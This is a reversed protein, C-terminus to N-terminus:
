PKRLRFFGRGSPNPVTYFFDAADSEYPVPIPLWAAASEMSESRELVWASAALPWSLRVGGTSSSIALQPAPGALKIVWFDSAGYNPTTKNGSIGSSSGGALLFGGDETSLVTRLVDVGTPSTYPGGFSQEWLKTGTADTKVLWFDLDGCFSCAKFGGLVIGGDGTLAISYLYEDGNRGFSKEWLKNGGADVKVLWDDFTGNPASYNPTIKNGSIGSESAGGLLFGGDPTPTITTLVDRNNGGFSRDWLKNGNADTKVLWYDYDGYNPSTKNGSVGSRSPGGILFGGDGTPVISAYPLFNGGVDGDGGSGGFSKDWLKNGSADIKVLWLDMAGYNASTKNGSIGSTSVGGLLAGGDDTSVIAYLVDYDGSGGFSKDWLKNGSADVKVLWSDTYGGYRPSTKNGSIGSFSDGGLLFGGDPTAALASYYFGEDDNGGFSKDWLKNGMADIKVLWLDSLGYNGSTKNGSAGSASRGGLVFGGDGTPVVSRGTDNGTGGFSEQWEIPPPTEAASVIPAILFVPAVCVGRVMTALRAHKWGSHKAPLSRPRQTGANM